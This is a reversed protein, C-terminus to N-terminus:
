STQRAEQTKLELIIHDVSGAQEILTELIASSTRMDEVTELAIANVRDLGRAIGASDGEMGAIADAIRTMQLANDRSVAVINRLAEGSAAALSTAEKLAETTGSMGALNAEAVKRISALVASVGQTAEMTKEALKHVEDAVVAFGRGAEGARAAEIAANLALLNTQDAIATISSLIDAINGTQATLANMSGRVEAANEQVRSIAAIVSDVRRAGTEAVERAETVSRATGASSRAIEGFVGVMRSVSVSTEQLSRYQEDGGKRTKEIEDGLQRAVRNLNESVAAAKDAVELTHDLISRLAHEQTEAQLIRNKLAGVMQRLSSSLVGIEDRGRVELTEDLNGRAVQRAYDATQRLPGILPRLVAMGILGGSLTLVASFLASFFLSRWVNRMLESDSAETCLYWGLGPIKQTFVYRTDGDLRYRFSHTDSATIASWEERYAPLVAGVPTNLRKIDQYFRLIGNEDAIFTLGRTGIVTRALNAALDRIDLAMSMVGAFDGDVEVRRNVFAKTGWVPDDVYVVVSQWASGTRFEHFWPDNEETMTYSHDRVGDQFKTYQLTRNSAFNAGLTHYTACFSELLAYVADLGADNPEGQRIWEQLVGSRAAFEAARAPEMIEHDIAALITRSTEPLLGDVLQRRIDSQHYYSSLSIIPVSVFFLLVAILINIKQRISFTKM